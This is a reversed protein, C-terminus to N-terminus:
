RRGGVGAGASRTRAARSRSGLGEIPGQLVVGRTWKQWRKGRGNVGGKGGEFHFADRKARTPEGKWQDIM